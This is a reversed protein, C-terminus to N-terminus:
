AVVVSEAGARWGSQQGRGYCHARMSGASSKYVGGRFWDLGRQLLGPGDAQHDETLTRDKPLPHAITKRKIAEMAITLISFKTKTIELIRRM